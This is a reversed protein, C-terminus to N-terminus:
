EMNKPGLLLESEFLLISSGGRCFQDAQFKGCFKCPIRYEHLIGTSSLSPLVSCSTLYLFLLLADSSM